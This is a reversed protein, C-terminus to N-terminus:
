PPGLRLMNCDFYIVSRVEGITNVAAVWGCHNRRRGTELVSGGLDAGVAAFKDGEVVHESVVVVAVVGKTSAVVAFARKAAMGFNYRVKGMSSCKYVPTKEQLESGDVAVLALPPVISLVKVTFYRPMRQLIHLHKASRVHIIASCYPLLCLLLKFSEVFPHCIKAYSHVSDTYNM